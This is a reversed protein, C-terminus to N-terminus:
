ELSITKFKDNKLKKKLNEIKYTKIGRELVEQNEGKAMDMATKGSRNKLLPNAGCKLLIEIAADNLPDKACLMLATCQDDNPRQTKVDPDAGANLLAKITEIFKGRPGSSESALIVM